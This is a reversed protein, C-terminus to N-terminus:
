RVRWGPAVPEETTLLYPQGDPDSAALLMGESLVGRLKAPKLNVVVVITKGVLAEPQYRLAIGAVLTRSETGIDVTLKLLKDAGEVREAATIRATRLELRGFEKIDIQATAPAPAPAPSPAATAGATDAPPQTGKSEPADMAVERSRRAEKLYAAKDIRPFLAADREIRSGPKLVGWAFEGLGNQDVKGTMGLQRWLRAASGPVVPAILRAVIRLGEAAAYLSSDLDARRDPDRAAKWPEQRVIFRNLEGVFDWVRALGASFNLARFDEIFRDWAIRAAEKLPAAATFRDDPAPIIGDCYDAIMKLSRSALNGLDNALDTNVREIFAEDSYNADQGFVMERMLFYRLPDIGFERILPLPDVVGGRSKSIKAADRLWWGHAVVREPLPLGASMLYAPWYVAHFRLIDKGVLHINAPWFRDYLKRDGGYELATVYNSLADFWVYLIHKPDTPFPIGWRLSSRSISLDKLGSEVFAVVENCRTAPFVFGPNNRYHELLPEQYRSLRFFYSEEETWEVKHGQDPCLGDVVQNEPFFAECSTCYWGAYKDKYIDGKDLVRRFLAEVGKRHRPETTRIFDDNSIGLTIWLSRFREVVEDALQIPEMGRQRAAREIKQGHEDTGTLYRVEEGLMRHFRALVDAVITTYTHGIHPVDNVYYIPTTLYFRDSM